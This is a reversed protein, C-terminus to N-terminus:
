ERRGGATQPDARTIPLADYSLGTAECVDRWSTAGLYHALLDDQEQASLHPWGQRLETETPGATGTPGIVLLVYERQGSENAFAEAVELNRAVQNRGKVWSVIEAPREFRKGEILVVVRETELCCDVSTFGEFAWWARRSGSPPKADLLDLAGSM